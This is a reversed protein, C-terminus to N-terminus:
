FDRSRLGDLIDQCLTGWYGWYWPEIKQSRLSHEQKDPKYDCAKTQGRPKDVRRTGEIAWLRGLNQNIEMVERKVYLIQGTKDHNYTCIQELNNRPKVCRKTVAFRKM